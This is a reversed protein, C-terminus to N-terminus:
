YSKVLKGSKIKRGNRDSLIYYYLSTKLSQLEIVINKQSNKEMLLQGQADYLKFSFRSTTQPKTIYINDSFPNPYISFEDSSNDNETTGVSVDFARAFYLTAGTAAKAVQYVYSTDLNMLLDNSSHPFTSENDEYFGTIIEGNQQFPVYDSGYANTITTTLSSYLQTLITLSDTFAASTANNSSPNSQDSECRVTNNVIGAIGGVEDINFVLRIQLNQQDVVNNVYHSSGILGEEEASFNIFLVSYETPINKIVRAIELIVSVGSGNDNTGKGTYTDYHGDVILYKNPYLTGTKTVIINYLEHGSQSFSDIQFDTYGYSTYKSLLWNKTNNLAATGPEKIGLTEFKHLYQYISDYSVNAVISQYYPNNTQSHLTNHFFASLVLALTLKTKM